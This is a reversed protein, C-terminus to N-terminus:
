ACCAVSLASGMFPRSTLYPRPVRSSTRHDRHAAARQTDARREAALLLNIQSTM